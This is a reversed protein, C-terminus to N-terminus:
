GLHPIADFHHDAHEVAVGHRAACASVVLDTAPITLGRSRCARALEMSLAWVDGDVALDVIAEEMERLAVAEQEGRAGNWLELRVMSCWAAEGSRLLDEVRQRVKTDGGKRLQEIWASTDILTM